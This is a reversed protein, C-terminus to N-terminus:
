LGLRLRAYCIEVKCVTENTAASSPFLFNTCARSDECKVQVRNWMDIDAALRNAM